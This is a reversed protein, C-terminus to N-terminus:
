SNKYFMNSVPQPICVCPRFHCTQCWRRPNSQQNKFSECSIFWIFIDFEIPLPRSQGENNVTPVVSQVFINVRLFWKEFYYISVQLIISLGMLSFSRFAIYFAM